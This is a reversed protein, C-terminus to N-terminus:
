DVPRWALFGRLSRPLAAPDLPAPASKEVDVANFTNWFLVPGAPPQARARQILAALCKGTYTTELQLGLGAAEAVAARAAETAAGYGAGLQSRVFEFDGEGLERHPIRPLRRRLRELAERAMRALKRPSPPLIDTVLVGV